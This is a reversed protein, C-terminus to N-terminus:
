THRDRFSDTGWGGDLGTLRASVPHNNKVQSMGTKPLIKRYKRKTKFVNERVFAISIRRM